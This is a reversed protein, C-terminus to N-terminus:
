KKVVKRIVNGDRTLVKVIYIGKPLTYTSIIENTSIQKSLITKGNFDSLIITSIGTLGTVTFNDSFPNPSISIKSDVITQIPTNMEVINIFDKWLYASQYLIKSGTPVYLICSTKNINAFVDIKYSLDIPTISYIYIASLKTCSKFASNGISNISLPISLSTLGSCYSFALEGITTVSNPLIANTLSTCEFFAAKGILTVSNGITISKLKICNSFAQEEITTVSNPISLETLNSCNHFAEVAITKM